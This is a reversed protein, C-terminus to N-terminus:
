SLKPGGQHPGSSGYFAEGLTAPTRSEAAPTGRVPGGESLAKAWRALTRVVAPHNGAGTFALAERFKPDSLEPDNAVKAFTQLTIELKDGGIEKDAKIEEQWDANVKNWYATAKDAAAQVQKAALDIMKQAAPGTLGHEKAIDTFEGFFAEDKELGEPFTVKEPDFPEPEPAKTEGLLSEPAKTEETKSETTEPPPTTEPSPTTEVTTVAPDSM